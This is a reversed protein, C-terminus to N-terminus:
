IHVIVEPTGTRSLHSTFSYYNRYRMMVSDASTAATVIHERTHCFFAQFVQLGHLANARCKFISYPNIYIQMVLHFEFLKPRNM